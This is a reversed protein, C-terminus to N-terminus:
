EYYIIGVVQASGGNNYGIAYNLSLTTASELDLPYINDPLDMPDPASSFPITLSEGTGTVFNIYGLGGLNYGQVFIGTIKVNGSPFTIPITGTSISTTSTNVFSFAVGKLKSFELETGDPIGYYVILGIGGPGSVIYPINLNLVTGKLKVHIPTYKRITYDASIPMPFYAINSADIYVGIIPPAAYTGPGGLPSFGIIDLDSEPMTIQYNGPNNIALTVSGKVIGM